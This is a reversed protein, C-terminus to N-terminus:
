LWNERIETRRGSRFGLHDLKFRRAGASNLLQFLPGDVLPPSVFTDGVGDITVALHSATGNMIDDTIGTLYVLWQYGLNLLWNFFQAPPKEAVVWGIDKKAEAPEVIVGGADAWRPFKEPKSPLPM